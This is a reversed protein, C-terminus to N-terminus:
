LQFDAELHPLLLVQLKARARAIRSKVTGVPSKTLEAIEMYSLNEIERLEIMIRAHNPLKECAADITESLQRREILEDARASPDAVQRLMRGDGGTTDVSEDISLISQRKRQRLQDYFLNTVMTKLWSRFAKPSRLAGIGLWLRIFTEQVFDATDTWEPALRYLLGFVTSEYRKALCEFAGQDRQQCASVLQVDNMDSYRDRRSTLLSLPLGFSQVKQQIWSAATRVVIVEVRCM